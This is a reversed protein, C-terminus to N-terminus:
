RYSKVMKLLELPAILFDSVKLKSGGIDVWRYVPYEFLKLNEKGQSNKLRFFLEIDFLWKSLFPKGFLDPVLSAKFIKSGCQTDYVPLDLALSAFTAFVRGLYHRYWKRQIETGLRLIRAGTVANLERSKLIDLFALSENLPTALDADWFGVVRYGKEQAQSMGFRVTEAKGRNTQGDIVTVRSQDQKTQFQILVDLTKDKSGDNVFLLDIKNQSNLFDQFAVLDLRNAENYCPIVLCCNLQSM